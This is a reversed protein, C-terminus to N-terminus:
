SYEVFVDALGSGIYGRPLFYGKQAWTKRLQLCLKLKKAAIQHAYLTIIGSKEIKNQSEISEYNGTLVKFM